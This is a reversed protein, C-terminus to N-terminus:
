GGWRAASSRGAGMGIVESTGDNGVESSQGSRSHEGGCVARTFFAAHRRGPM